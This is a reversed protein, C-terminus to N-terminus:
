ANHKAQTIKKISDYAKLQTGMSNVDKPHEGHLDIQRKYFLVTKSVRNALKVLRESQLKRLKELPQTEIEKPNM